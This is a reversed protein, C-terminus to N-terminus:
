ISYVIHLWVIVYVVYHIVIYLIYYIFLWFVFGRIFISYVFARFGDMLVYERGSEFWCTKHVDANSVSADVLEAVLAFLELEGVGVSSVM